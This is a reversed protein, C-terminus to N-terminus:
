PKCKTDREIEERLRNRLQAIKNSVWSGSKGFCKGIEKLSKEALIGDCIAIEEETMREKLKEVTIMAEIKEIDRTSEVHLINENYTVNKPLMSVREVLDKYSLGARKAARKINHVSKNFSEREKEPLDRPSSKGDEAVQRDIDYLTCLRLLNNYNSQAKRLYSPISVSSINAHVYEMMADKIRFIAYAKFVSGRTKDWDRRARALGILGEGFLDSKPLGTSVAYTHAIKNLIGKFDNYTKEAEEASDALFYKPMDEPIKVRTQTVVEYRVTVGNQKKNKYKFPSM